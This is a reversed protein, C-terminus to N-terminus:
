LQAELTQLVQEVGPRLALWDPPAPPAAAFAADAAAFVQRVTDAQAAPAGTASLQALVDAGVLAAPEAPFHPAAAIAMARAAFQLFARPDNAEIAAQLQRRTRRLERRARRRRVIEPHAALFRRQRDWQWLAVFGALPVLQLAAFWAQLQLPRLGSTWGPAPAPASLRLPAATKDQDATAALATPLGHGLVTVPLPPVTLDVYKGLVPDFFCFPVAPTQQLDDALPVLTYGTAPPDDAVVEWDRSFPLNPPVFRTLDGEAHFKVQLKVPEGVQLRNTALRPPDVFFRGITGTFSPPQGDLPLPRVNVQAPDSVLLVYRTPGTPFKVQGHIAVPTMFERGATFAQGFFRLPGPALAEVTLQATSAMVLRGNLNVPEIAQQSTSRDVMIGDGQLEIERLAEVENDTGAPLVLRVRFPQGLFVNTAPMELLLQRAAATGIRKPVVDLSAEPVEVRTGSVDVPFNTVTFHGEALPKVEYVFSALPRFRAGALETTQSSAKPGFELGSPVAITEPWATASETADLVVRYYVRDGVHAIPPDFAATISVPSSLDVTPQPVQLQLGGGPPLHPPMQASAGPALFLWGVVVLCFALDSIRSLKRLTQLPHFNRSAAEHDCRTIRVIKPAVSADNGRARAREGLSLSTREGPRHFYARSSQHDGSEVAM